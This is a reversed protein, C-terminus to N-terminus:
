QEEMCKQTKNVVQKTKQPDQEIQCSEIIKDLFALQLLKSNEVYKSDQIFDPDRMQELLKKNQRNTEVAKRQFGKVNTLDQKSYM